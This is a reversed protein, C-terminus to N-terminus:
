KWLVSLALGAGSCVQKLLSSLEARGLASDQCYSFTTTSHPDLNFKLILKNPFCETLDISVCIFQFIFRQREENM